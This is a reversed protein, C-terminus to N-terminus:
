EIEKVTIGQNLAMARVLNRHKTTTISHFVSSDPMVIEEGEWRAIVVDYSKLVEGDTSIPGQCASHGLFKTVVELNKPMYAERELGLDRKLGDRQLVGVLHCLLLLTVLIVFRDRHRKSDEVLGMM